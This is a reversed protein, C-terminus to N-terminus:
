LTNQQSILGLTCVGQFADVLDYVCTEIRDAARM